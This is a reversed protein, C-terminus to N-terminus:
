QNRHKVRRTLSRIKHSVKTDQTTTTAAASLQLTTHHNSVMTQTHILATNEKNKVSAQNHNCLTCRRATNTAYHVDPLNRRVKNPSSREYALAHKQGKYRPKNASIEKHEIALRIINCVTRKRASSTAYPVDQRCKRHVKNHSSGEYAPASEKGKRGPNTPMLYWSPQQVQETACSVTGTAWPGQQGWQLKVKGEQKSRVQWMLSPQNLLM